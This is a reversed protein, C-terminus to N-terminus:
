QLQGRMAFRIPGSAAAGSRLQQLWTQRWAPNVHANWPARELTASLGELTPLTVELRTDAMGELRFDWAEDGRRISAQTLTLSAPLDQALQHMFSAPLPALAPTLQQLRERQAMLKAYDTDLQASEAELAPLAAMALAGRSAVRANFHTVWAVSVLAMVWMVAAALMAARTLARQSLARQRFRPVLNGLPALDVRAAARAWTFELDDVAVDRLPMELAPGVRAPLEADGAFICTADISKGIKQKAFLATRNTELLVREDPSDHEGIVVTRAFVVCADARVVCLMARERLVVTAIVVDQPSECAPQAMRAVLEALPLISRVQLFHEECIRIMADVIRKPALHLLVTRGTQAREDAIARYTWAAPESFSKDAEVRRAVMRELDAASTPPAEFSLHGSDDNAFVIAIPGSPLALAAHATSVAEAFAALTDVSEAAHYVAVVKGRQLRVARFEGFVWSIVGVLRSM